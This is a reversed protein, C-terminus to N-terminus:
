YFPDADLNSRKVFKDLEHRLVVKRVLDDFWSSSSPAVYIKEILHEIDLTVSVGIKPLDNPFDESLPDPPLRIPENEVAPTRPMVVRLEREHAFSRRKHMVSHLFNDADPLSENDYDIYQVKGIFVCDNKCSPSSNLCDRLRQYTSQVCIAEETRAYLKWMAASEQENMHWCNVYTWQRRWKLVQSLTEQAGRVQAPDALGEWFKKRHAIDARPSSGEFPDGLRDLRTFFLGVEELMSVFKTFDMYRWIKIDVPEPPIFAPNECVSM